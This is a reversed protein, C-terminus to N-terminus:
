VHDFRNSIAVLRSLMFNQMSHYMLYQFTLFPCIQPRIHGGGKGNSKFYKQRLTVNNWCIPSISSIIEFIHNAGAWSFWICGRGNTTNVWADGFTLTFVLFRWGCGIGCRHQQLFCRLWSSQSSTIAPTHQDPIYVLSSAAGPNQTLTPQTWGFTERCSCFRILTRFIVFALSNSPHAWNLERHASSVGPAAVLCSVWV